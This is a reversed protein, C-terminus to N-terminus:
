FAPQGNVSVNAVLAERDDQTLAAVMQEAVFKVELVNQKTIVSRGDSGAGNPNDVIVDGNANGSTNAEFETVIDIAFQEATRRTKEILDSLVRLKENCFKVAQPNTIDAM